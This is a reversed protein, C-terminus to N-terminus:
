VLATAWFELYLSVSLSYVGIMCYKVFKVKNKIGKGCELRLCTPLSHRGRERIKSLM